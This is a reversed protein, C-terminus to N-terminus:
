CPFYCSVDTGHVCNFQNCSGFFICILESVAQKVVGGVGTRSVMLGAGDATPTFLEDTVMQLVPLAAVSVAEPPVVVSFVLTEPLLVVETAMLSLLMEDRPMGMVNSFPAVM